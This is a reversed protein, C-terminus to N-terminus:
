KEYHAFPIAKVAELMEGPRMETFPPDAPNDPPGFLSEWDLGVAELIDRSECGTTCTVLLRRDKIVAILLGGDGDESSGKCIPCVAGLAGFTTVLRELRTM